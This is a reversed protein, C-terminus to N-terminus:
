LIDMALMAAFGLSVFALYNFIVDKWLGKEWSFTWLTNQPERSYLKVFFYHEVRYLILQIAAGKFPILSKENPFLYAIIMLLVDIVFLIKFSHKKVLLTRNFIFIFFTNIGLVLILHEIIPTNMNLQRQNPYQKEAWNYFENCIGAEKYESLFTSAVPGVWPVFGIGMIGIDVIGRAYDDGSKNSKYFKYFADYGEFATYGWGVYKLVSLYKIVDPPINKVTLKLANKTINETSALAVGSYKAAEYIQAGKSKEVKYDESVDSGTSSSGYAAIASFTSTNGANSGNGYSKVWAGIKPDYVWGDEDWPYCGSPDVYKFQLLIPRQHLNNQKLVEIKM